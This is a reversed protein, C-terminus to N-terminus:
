ANIKGIKKTKINKDNKLNENRNQLERVITNYRVELDFIEKEIKNLEVVLDFNTKDEFKNMIVVRDLYNTIYKAKM